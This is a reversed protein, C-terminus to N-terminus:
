PKYHSFLVSKNFWSLLIMIVFLTLVSLTVCIALSITEWYVSSCSDPGQEPSIEFFIKREEDVDTAIYLTLQPRSLECNESFCISFYSVPGSNRIFTQRTELISVTVTGTRNFNSSIFLGSRCFNKMDSPLTLTTTTPQKKKSIQVDIVPDLDEPSEMNRGVSMSNSLLVLISLLLIKKM